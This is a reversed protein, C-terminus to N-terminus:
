IEWVTLGEPVGGRPVQYTGSRIPFRGTMLASRSPTCQAEVNFNLLRTSEAALKDIRPTPAGRLIGGGYVGLEGYGLNDTLMLVINPKRAGTAPWAQPHKETEPLPSPKEQAALTLAACVCVLLLPVKARTYKRLLTM